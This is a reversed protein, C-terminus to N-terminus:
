SPRQRPVLSGRSLGTIREAVPPSLFRGLIAAITMGCVFPAPVVWLFSISARLGFLEKGFAISTSAVLSAAFGWAVAMVGVRPFLIGAFFLVGLPGVFLGGIRSSLELLNWESHTMALALGCTVLTVLVGTLWAITQAARLGRRDAEGLDGVGSVHPTLM